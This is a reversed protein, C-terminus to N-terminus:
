PLYHNFLGGGGGGTSPTGLNVLAVSSPGFNAVPTTAISVLDSGSYQITVTDSAAMATSLNVIVTKGSVTASSITQSVGNKIVTFDAVPVATSGRLNYNVTITIATGQGTITTVTPVITDVGVGIDYGQAVVSGFMLNGAFQLRYHDIKRHGAAWASPTPTTNGPWWVNVWNVTYTAGGVAGPNEIYYDVTQGDSANAPYRVTLVGGAGSEVIYVVGRNSWDPTVDIGTFTQTGFSVQAVDSLLAIVGAKDPTVIKWSGSVAGCLIDTTRLTSGV